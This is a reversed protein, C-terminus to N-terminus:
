CGLSRQRLAEYLVIAAAVGANLSEARGPMPINVLDTTVKFWVPSPGHAENGVVVALRGRLDACYYPIKGKSDCVVVHYGGRQLFDLAETCEALAWIPVAYFAGASGRIVKPSTPDTSGVTLIASAGIAAATRLMTGLNGPDRIADAVLIVHNSALAAPGANVPINAVAVMPQPTATGAISGLVEATVSILECGQGELEDLLRKDGAALAEMVYFCCGVVAGAGAAEAIFRPGEILLKGQKRRERGNHLARAQRVRPNHM